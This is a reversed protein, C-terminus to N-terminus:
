VPGVDNPGLQDGEKRTWTGGHWSIVNRTVIASLRAIVELQEPDSMPVPQPATKGQDLDALLQEGIEVDYADGRERGLAIGRMAYERARHTNGLGWAGFALNVYGFGAHFGHDPALALVRAECRSFEDAHQLQGATRALTSAVLVQEHLPVPVTFLIQLLPEIEASHNNILYLYLADHVALPFRENHRPYIELAEVAYKRAQGINGRQFCLVVLDHLTLAALWDHGQDISAASAREYHTVAEDFAGRDVCLRGYGLHSRIYVYWNLDRYAYRIARDYFAEARWGCKKSDALIRNARGAIWAFYPNRPVIAASAEAFHLATKPCGAAQAWEAVAECAKAVETESPPRRGTVRMLTRLDDRLDPPADKLATTRRDGVHSATTKPFLKQRSAPPTWATLWVKVVLVLLEVGM